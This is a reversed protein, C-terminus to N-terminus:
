FPNNYHKNFDRCVQTTHWGRYVRFFGPARKGNNLQTEWLKLRGRSCCNNKTKTPQMRPPLDGLPACGRRVNSRLLSGPLSIWSHRDVTSLSNDMLYMHKTTEQINNYTVGWVWRFIDEYRLINFLFVRYTSLFSYLLAKWLFGAM